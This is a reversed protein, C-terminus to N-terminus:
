RGPLGGLLASLGLADLLDTLGTEPLLDGLGGAGGPLQGLLDGLGITGLVTQLVELLDAPDFDAPVQGGLLDCLPKAQPAQACLAGIPSASSGGPVLKALEDCVQQPLGADCLAQIPSDKGTAPAGSRCRQLAGASYNRTVATRQAYKTRADRDSRAKTVQKRLKKVKKAKAKKAKKSKAKKHSVKAKKLKKKLKKLKTQASKAAKVAATHSRASQNYANQAATCDPAAAAQAPAAPAATAGPTAALTLGLAVALGVIIKFLARHM